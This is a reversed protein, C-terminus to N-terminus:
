SGTFMLIRVIRFLAKSLHFKLESLLLYLKCSFFTDSALMFRLSIGNIWFKFDNSGCYNLFWIIGYHFNWKERYGHRRPLLFFNKSCISGPSKWRNMKEKPQRSNKALFTTKLHKDCPSIFILHFLWFWLLCIETPM